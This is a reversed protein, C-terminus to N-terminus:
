SNRERIQRKEAGERAWLKRRELRSKPKVEMVPMTSALGLELSPREAEKVDRGLVTM